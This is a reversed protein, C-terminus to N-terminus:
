AQKIMQVNLLLKVDDSLVVGGTETTANWTLGFEKRSLKGKLEFGSKTQGYPDVTVGGFEVELEIPKTVDRITLDGTLKYEEDDVKEIKTSTFKIQPYKEVDFFDASKLHGDRQENNTTISAVETSFNIKADTFDDKESELTADFATFSGTVNTIMLHRIKFQIESHAADIKWTAM